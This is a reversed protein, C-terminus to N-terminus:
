AVAPGGGGWTYVHPVPDEDAPETATGVASQCGLVVATEHDTGDATLEVAIGTYPCMCGCQATACYHWAEQNGDGDSDWTPAYSCDLGPVQQTAAVEPVLAFALTVLGFAALLPAARV